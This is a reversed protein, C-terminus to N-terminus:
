GLIWDAVTGAVSIHYKKLAWYHLPSLAITVANLPPPLMCMPASEYLLVYEQVYSAQLYLVM